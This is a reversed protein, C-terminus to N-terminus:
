MIVTMAIVTRIGNSKLVEQISMVQLLFGNLVALNEEIYNVASNMREIWDMDQGGAVHYTSGFESIM